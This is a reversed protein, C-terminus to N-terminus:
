RPSWISFDQRSGYLDTEEDHDDIPSGIPEVQMDEASMFLNEVQLGLAEAELATEAWVSIQFRNNKVSPLDTGLFAMSRGGVRQYKAYPTPAEAPVVSPYAALGLSELSACVWEIATM